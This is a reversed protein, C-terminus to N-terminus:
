RSLMLIVISFNFIGMLMMAIVFSKEQNKLSAAIIELVRKKM